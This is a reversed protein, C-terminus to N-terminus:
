DEDITDTKLSSTPVRTSTPPIPTPIPTQSIPTLTETAMWERSATATATVVIPVEVMRTVEVEQTIVVPATVPSSFTPIWFPSLAIGSMIGVTLLGAGVLVYVWGKQRSQPKCVAEIATIFERCSNPRDQPNLALASRVIPMLELPLHPHSQLHPKATALDDVLDQCPLQGTMMEYFVTALSYLDSATGFENELKQEPSAYPLTRGTWPSVETQFQAVGFDTLIAHRRKNPDDRFLINSPNVDLHVLNVDPHHIADLACGIQRVVDIAEELSFRKGQSARQRMWQRLSGGSLYQMVFYWLQREPDRAIYCRDDQGGVPIIPIIHEHKLNNARELKSIEQKLFIEDSYREVGEVMERPYAVKLAVLNGTDDRALYITSMGGVEITREITYLNGFREGLRLPQMFSAM